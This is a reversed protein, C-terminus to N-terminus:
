AGRGSARGPDADFYRTLRHVINTYETVAATAAEPSLGDAIRERILNASHLRWFAGRDAKPIRAMTEAMSRVSVHRVLPFAVITAPCPLKRAPRKVPAIDAFLDLQRSTM